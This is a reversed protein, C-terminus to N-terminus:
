KRISDLFQTVSHQLTKARNALESVTEDLSQTAKSTGGALKAVDQISESVETTATVARVVNSSIEKTAVGQESLADSIARVSEDISHVNESIANIAHASEETATQVSSVQKVIEETARGTQTALSKVENAVVAFGKGAEGARAAEITANLALLNTQDAISTILGVVEGIRVAASSLSEVKKISDRASESATHALHASREVQESIAGISATLEETAAAVAEVNQSASNASKSSTDARELVTSADEAVSCIQQAIQQSIDTISAVSGGATTEFDTAMKEMIKKREAEARTRSQEAEANLRRVELSNDRFIALAAAMQGIANKWGVAPIETELDGGSIEEMAATMRALSRTIGLAVFTVVSVVMIIIILMIISSFIQLQDLTKELHARSANFNDTTSKIVANLFPESEAFLKSLKKTEKALTIRLTVYQEFVDAWEAARPSPIDATLQAIKTRFEKVDSARVSLAVQRELRQLDLFRVVLDRSKYQRIERGLRMQIDNLAGTLGETDKLGKQKSLDVVRGFQAKYAKLTEAAANANEVEGSTLLPVLRRFTGLIRAIVKGHKGAEKETQRLIFDKERRRANLFDYRIESALSYAVYAQSQEELDEKIIQEQWRSLGWIPIFGIVVAVVILAMQAELRMKQLFM